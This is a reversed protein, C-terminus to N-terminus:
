RLKEIARHFELAPTGSAAEYMAHWDSTNAVAAYVAAERADAAEALFRLVLGSVDEGTAIQPLMRFLHKDYPPAAGQVLFALRMAARVMGARALLRAVHDANQFSRLYAYLDQAMATRERGIERQLVAPPVSRCHNVLSDLLSRDGALYILYGYVFLPTMDDYTQVKQWVTATSELTYDGVLDAFEEEPEDGEKIRGVAILELRIADYIDPPCLVKADVDAGKGGLGVAYSGTLAICVKGAYRALVPHRAFFSRVQNATTDDLM